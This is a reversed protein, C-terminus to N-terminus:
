NETPDAPGSGMTRLERARQCGHESRLSCAYEYFELAQAGNAPVGWGKETAEGMSDCAPAYGRECAMHFLRAGQMPNKEGGRGRVRMYGLANCSPMHGLHHCTASNLAAAADYDVTGLSGDELALALVYCADLERATCAHELLARAAAFRPEVKLKIVAKGFNSCFGISDRCAEDLLRLAREADSPNGGIILGAGLGGCAPLFGRACPEELLAMGRELDNSNSGALTCALMSGFGCSRQYLAVARVIDRTVGCGTHYMAGAYYCDAWRAESCRREIAVIEEATRTCEKGHYAYERDLLALEEQPVGPRAQEPLPAAEPAPAAEPRPVAPRPVDGHGCAAGVLLTLTWVRFPELKM